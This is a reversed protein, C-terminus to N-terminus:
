SAYLKRSRAILNQESQWESKEESCMECHEANLRTVLLALTAYLSAAEEAAMRLLLDTQCDHLISNRLKILDLRLQIVTDKAQALESIM